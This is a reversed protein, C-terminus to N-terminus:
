QWVPMEPKPSNQMQKFCRPSIGFEQRFARYFTSYDCFGSKEAVNELSEGRIILTKAEVLRCQTLFQIFTVGLRKRFLSGITRKSVYIQKAM